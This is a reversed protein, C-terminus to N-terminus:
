PLVVQVSGHTVTAYVALIDEVVRDWDYRRVVDSAAREYGARVAEDACVEILNRALDDSDGVHFSRGCRGHEIVAEFAPLNSAVVTTGAAMAEALVIGFSEGGLQPAVYVTASRLLRCRAEDGVHGLFEVGDVDLRTTPPEGRGAVLLRVDPVAARVQPWAALLTALGKRPEDTRGLFALVPGPGSWAPEVTADAFTSCFLGNPIVVPEGGLHQVLTARASESVAIRAGIKETAPRLMTSVAAMTRSRVNATHFTAVVPRECAWLALLSVSPALPEHVHVLDFEGRRLWRATRASVRPGFALRAISGNYPVAVTRGVLEVYSPLDQTREGPALVGVQHGRTTLSRALDRVHNQVGGPVDFSYPCVLGIRM